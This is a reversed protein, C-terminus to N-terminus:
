RRGKIKIEISHHLFLVILRMWARDIDELCFLRYSIELPNWCEGVSPNRFNVVQIKYGADKLSCATRNYIEAKPDCIILSEEAYGLIKVLPLV